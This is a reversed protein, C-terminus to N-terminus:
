WYKLTWKIFNMIKKKKKLDVPWSDLDLTGEALHSYKMVYYSGHKLLINPGIYVGDLWTYFM